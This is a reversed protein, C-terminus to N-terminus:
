PFSSSNTFVSFSYDTLYSSFWSFTCRPLWTFFTHMHFLFASDVNDFSGWLDCLVLILFHRNSNAIHFDSSVEVICNQCRTFPSLRIPSTKLSFLPSINPLAVLSLEELTKNYFMFHIFFHPQEQFTLHPWVFIIHSFLPFSELLGPSHFFNSSGFMIDFSKDPFFSVVTRSSFSLHSISIPLSELFFIILKCKSLNLKFHYHSTQLFFDQQCNYWLVPSCHSTSSLTTSKFIYLM